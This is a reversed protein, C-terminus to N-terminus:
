LMANLRLMYLHARVAQTESLRVVPGPTETGRYLTTAHEHGCSIRLSNASTTSPWSDSLSPSSAAGAGALNPPARGASSRGARPVAWLGKPLPLLAAPEAKPRAPLVLPPLAGAAGLGSAGPPSKPPEPVVPAPPGLTEFGEVAAGLVNPLPLKPPPAKPDPPPKPPAFVPAAGGADSAAASCCGSLM